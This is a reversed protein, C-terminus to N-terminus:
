KLRGAGGLWGSAGKQLWETAASNHKVRSDLFAVGVAQIAAVQKSDPAPEGMPGHSGGGNKAGHKHGRGKSAGGSADGGKDGKKGPRNFLETGSLTKHTANDLELQVSGAVTVSEGLLQRQRYSSVWNFPDEDEQGTVSLVPASMQTFMERRAGADVYPSLLLVAKPQIAVGSTVGSELAGGLVEATQAGLDFGAVAIQNWDIAALQADGKAARARVETLVKQLTSLRDRLAAASYNNSAVGRFDGDLAQRSSFISQDYAHGQVSLVAYGAHAWANRWEAGGSASEGLGPLYIILPLRAPTSPALWAVNVSQQDLQWIADWGATEKHAPQYATALHDNVRESFKIRPNPPDGACGAILGLSGVLAGVALWYRPQLNM